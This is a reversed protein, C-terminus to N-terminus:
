AASRRLDWNAFYSEDLRDEAREIVRLSDTSPARRDAGFAEAFLSDLEDHYRLEDPVVPADDNDEIPASVAAVPEAVEAEPMYIEPVVYSFRASVDAEPLHEVFFSSELEASPAMVGVTEPAPMEEVNAALIESELAQLDILAPLEAAPENGIIVAPAGDRLLDATLRRAEERAAEADFRRLMALVPRMTAEDGALCGALVAQIIARNLMPAECAGGRGISRVAALGAEFANFLHGPLAAKNYLAHFAPGRTKLIGAVRKPTMGSLRVLAAGFLTEDGCLVGRLLLSPTLQATARLHEIFDGLDPAEFALLMTAQERSDGVVREARAADILGTRGIFSLLHTSLSAVLSQRVTSPLDDRVALAERLEGHEPHRDVMRAFAEAVIEAGPNRCLATLAEGGAIEALVSSVTASIEFRLAIALHSLASGTRACDILDADRLQPSRALILSSVDAEDHALGILLHRPARESLALKRALARRVAPSVDDLVVTLAAEAEAPSADLLCDGLYADAMAEVAEIRGPVPASQYWKLFSRVIM